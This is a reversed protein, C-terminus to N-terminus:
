MSLEIPIHTKHIINNFHHRIYDDMNIENHSEDGWPNNYDQFKFMHSSFTVANRFVRSEKGDRLLMPQIGMVRSLNLIKHLTKKGFLYLHSHQIWYEESAENHENRNYQNMRAMWRNIMTFVDIEADIMSLDRERNINKAFTYVENWLAVINATMSTMFTTANLAEVYHFKNPYGYGGLCHNEPILANELIITGPRAMRMGTILPWDSKIKHPITSLDVVVKFKNGDADLAPITSYDAMEVNTLWNAEGNLIYGDDVKRINVTSSGKLDIDSGITSPWYSNLIKDKLEKDELIHIYNRGAQNHHIAHALGLDLNTTLWFINKFWQIKETSQANPLDIDFYPQVQELLEYTIYSEDNVYTEKFNSNSIDKIM